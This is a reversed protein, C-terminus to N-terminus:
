RDAAHRNCCCGDASVYSPVCYDGFKDCYFLTVFNNFNNKFNSLGLAVLGHGVHGMWIQQGV